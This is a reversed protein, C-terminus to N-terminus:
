RLWNVFAKKIYDECDDEMSLEEIVRIVTLDRPVFGKKRFTIRYSLADAEAQTGFAAYNCLLKTRCACIISVYNGMTKNASIYDDIGCM